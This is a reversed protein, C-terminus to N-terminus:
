TRLTEGHIGTHPLAEDLEAALSRSGAEDLTAAEAKAAAALREAFEIITLREIEFEEDTLEFAMWVDVPRGNPLIGCVITERPDIRSLAEVFSYFVGKVNARLSFGLEKLRKHIVKLASHNIRGASEVLQDWQTKLGDIVAQKSYQQLWPTNGVNIGLARYVHDGLVTHTHSTKEWPLAALDKIRNDPGTIQGSEEKERIAANLKDVSGYGGMVCAEAVTLPLWPNPAVNLSPMKARPM